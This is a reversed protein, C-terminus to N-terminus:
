AGRLTAVLMRMWLIMSSGLGVVGLVESLTVDGSVEPGFDMAILVLSLGGSAVTLIVLLMRNVLAEVFRRDDPHALPRTRTTLEGKALQRAVRELDQPVDRMLPLLRMAEADLASRLDGLHPTRADRAIHDLEHDLQLDPSLGFITGELKVLAQGLTAIEGPVHLGFDNIISFLQAFASIRPGAALPGFQSEIFRSVTRELGSCDAGEDPPAIALVARTALPGDQTTVAMFLDRMSTLMQSDLRGTFGLDIIGLSGDDLAVFNGPHPDGHFMGTTIAMGLVSALLRRALEDPDHGHEVVDDRRQMTPGDFREMVIMKSTCLERHIAPIKVSRDNRVAHQFHLLNTAEHTFDLETELGDVFDDIQSGINLRRAWSTRRELVDALKRLVDLDTSMSEAVGPRQIKVIIEEGSHLRATHVQGISGAALPTDDFRDFLDDVSQGGCQGQVAERIAEPKEPVVRSHLKSLEFIYEAPVFEPRTALVQGLKVYIGGAAEFTQRLRVPMGSEDAGTRHLLGNRRALGLVERLRQARRFRDRIGGKARHAGAASSPLVPTLLEQLVAFAMAALVSLYLLSWGFTTDAIDGDAIQWAVIAAAVYGGVTATVNDRVSREVGLLRSVAVALALLVLPTFLIAIVVSM